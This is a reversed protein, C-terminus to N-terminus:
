NSLARHSWTHSAIHHGQEYEAQLTASYQTIQSGIVFFTASLKLETLSALLGPTSPSPGIILTSTIVMMMHFEGIKNEMALFLILQGRANHALGPALFGLWKILQVVQAQAQNILYPYHTSLFLLYTMNQMSLQIQLHLRSHPHINQFILIVAQRM